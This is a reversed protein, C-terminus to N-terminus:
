KSFHYIEHNMTSLKILHVNYNKDFAALTHEKMNNNRDLEEIYKYDYCFLFKKGSSNVNKSIIREFYSNIESRNLDDEDFIFQYYECENEKKSCNNGGLFIIKENLYNIAVAGILNIKNNIPNSNFFNYKLYKWCIHDSKQSNNNIISLNYELIDFYEISDLYKMNQYNYGFFVFLYREKIICSSFYSREVNMEPLDIWINNNESFVEVKKTFNGGLCIIQGEYCIMGGNSHNYTLDCKQELRNNTFKYKYFKNSNGGTVIYYDENKMLYINKNTNNAKNISEYFYKNFNKNEIKKIKFSIEEPDFSIVSIQFNQAKNINNKSYYLAFISKSEKKYSNNEINLFKLKTSNLPFKNIYKSTSLTTQSQKSYINQNDNSLFSSKLFADFNTNNHKLNEKKIIKTLSNINEQINIKLEKSNIKKNTNLKINSLSTNRKLKEEKNNKIAVKNNENKYLEGKIKPAKKSLSIIQCNRLKDNKIENNIDNGLTDQKYCKNISINEKIVDGNNFLNLKKRIIKRKKNHNIISMNKLNDKYKNKKINGALKLGNKLTNTLNETLFSDQIINLNSNINEKNESFLESINNNAYIKQRNNLKNSNELHSLFLNNKLKRQEYNTYRNSNLLNKDMYDFNNSMLLGRSFITDDHKLGKSEIKNTKVNKLYRQNDNRNIIKEFNPSFNILKAEKLNNSYQNQSTKIFPAKEIQYNSLNNKDKKHFKNQLDTNKNNELKQEFKCKKFKEIYRNSIFPTICDTNIKINNFQNRYINKYSNYGNKELTKNKILNENFIKRYKTKRNKEDNVDNKKKTQILIDKPTKYYLINEDKLPNILNLESFLPHVMKKSVSFNHRVQSKYILRNVKEYNAIKKDMSSINVQAKETLFNPENSKIITKNQGNNYFNFNNKMIKKDRSSFPIYEHVKNCNSLPIDKIQNLQIKKIKEKNNNIQSNFGNIDEKLDFVNKTKYIRNSCNYLLSKNPNPSNKKIINHSTNLYLHRKNIKSIYFKKM